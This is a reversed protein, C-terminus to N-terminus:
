TFGLVCFNAGQASKKYWLIIQIVTNQNLTLLVTIRHFICLCRRFLLGIFDIIDVFTFVQLLILHSNFTFFLNTLPQGVTLM